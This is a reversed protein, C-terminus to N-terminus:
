APETDTRGMDKKTIANLREEHEKLITLKEAQRKAKSNKARVLRTKHRREEEAIARRQEAWVGDHQAADILGVVLEDTWRESTGGAETGTFSAASGIKTTGEEVVCWLVQEGGEGSSTKFKLVQGRPLEALTQALNRV